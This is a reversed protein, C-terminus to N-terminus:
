QVNFASTQAEFFIGKSFIPPNIGQSVELQFKPLNQLKVLTLIKSTTASQPSQMAKGPLYRTM